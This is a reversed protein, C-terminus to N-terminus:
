GVILRGGGHTQQMRPLLQVPEMVATSSGPLLPNLTLKAPLLSVGANCPPCHLAIPRAAARLSSPTGDLTEQPHHTAAKSEEVHRPYQWSDQQHWPDAAQARPAHWAFVARESTFQHRGGPKVKALQRSWSGRGSIRPRGREEGNMSRPRMTDRFIQRTGGAATGTTLRLTPWATPVEVPM